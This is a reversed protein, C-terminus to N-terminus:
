TCKHFLHINEGAKKNGIGPIKRLRTTSPFADLVLIDNWSLYSIPHLGMVQFMQNYRLIIVTKWMSTFGILGHAKYYM